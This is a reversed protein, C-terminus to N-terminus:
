DDDIKKIKLKTSKQEEHNEEKLKDKNEKKGTEQSLFMSQQNSHQRM